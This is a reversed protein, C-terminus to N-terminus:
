HTANGRGRRPEGEDVPPTRPEPLQEVLRPLRALLIRTARLDCHSKVLLDALDGAGWLLGAFIVLRIAEAFLVGYSIEVTSTLGSFVQLVMLLGLLGSMVRCLKAVWPLGTSECDADRVPVGFIATRPTPKFTRRDDAPPAHHTSPSAM